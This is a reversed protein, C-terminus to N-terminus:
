TCYYHLASISLCNQLILCRFLGNHVWWISMLYLEDTQNARKLKLTSLGQYPHFGIMGQTKDFVNMGAYSKADDAAYDM